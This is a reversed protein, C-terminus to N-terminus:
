TRVQHHILFELCAGLSSEDAIERQERMLLKLM